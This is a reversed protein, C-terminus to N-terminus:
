PRFHTDNTRINYTAIYIQVLANILEKNKSYIFEGNDHLYPDYSVIWYKGRRWYKITLNHIRNYHKLSTLIVNDLIDDVTFCNDPGTAYEPNAGYKILNNSETKTLITKM